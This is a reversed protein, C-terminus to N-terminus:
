HTRRPRTLQTAGITSDSVDGCFYRPANPVMCWSDTVRPMNKELTKPM